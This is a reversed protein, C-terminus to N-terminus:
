NIAEDVKKWQSERPGAWAMTLTLAQLTVLIALFIKMAHSRRDNGMEVDDLCGELTFAAVRKRKHHAQRVM